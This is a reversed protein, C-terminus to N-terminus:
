RSVSNLWTPEPLRLCRAAWALSACFQRRQISRLRPLEPLDPRWSVDAFFAALTAVAARLIDPRLPVCEGYWAIIQEPAPGGEAAVGQVFTAADLEAPGVAAFPWDFLRLCGKAWRLNDSRTDLHLLVHPPDLRAALDGAEGLAPLAAQLWRQADAAQTGALAAVERLDDSEEAVLEWPLTFRVYRQRPLWEPLAKGLTAQHFEAYAHAVGRAKALTWPPVSKPGLDELLLVHWSDHRFSGYFIPLWPAIMGGLERYFREERALAHGAGQGPVQSNAKVFARQGNAL